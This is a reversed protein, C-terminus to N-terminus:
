HIQSSETRLIHRPLLILGPLLVFHIFRYLRSHFPVSARYYALPQMCLHLPLTSSSLHPQLHPVIYNFCYFTECQPFLIFYIEHRCLDTLPSRGYCQYIMMMMLMMSSCFYPGPASSVQVGRWSDQYTSSSLTSILDFGKCFVFSQNNYQWQNINNNYLIGWRM